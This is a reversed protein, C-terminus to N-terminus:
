DKTMCENSPVYTNMLWRLRNIAATMSGNDLSEQLLGQNFRDSRVVQTIWSLCAMLSMEKIVEIVSRESSNWDVTGVLDWSLAIAISSEYLATYDFGQENHSCCDLFRKLNHNSPRLLLYEAHRAIHKRWALEALWHEPLSDAGYFCGAIQGYIAATTDADDGLNAALLAGHEFSDSHYFCWLAAELSDIVFGTGKIESEQKLRYNGTALDVVDQSLSGLRLIFDPSITLFNDKTLEISPTNLGRHLFYTMLACAAQTRPEAHTTMSALCAADCAEEISQKRYFLAIPAIRMLSGNGATNPEESGSLPDGTLEFQHLASRVTNGIDFCHGTCSNEGHRYWRLYRDMQDKSNNEGCELLSDALCLMMSTDDTWQGAQLNFPGGGEMDTIPTFSGKPRFELTTGLADGLALGLLVGQAKNRVEDSIM